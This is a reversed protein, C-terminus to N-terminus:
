VRMVPAAHSCSTSECMQAGERCVGVQLADAALQVSPERLGFEKKNRDFYRKVNVIAWKEGPELAKGRTYKM